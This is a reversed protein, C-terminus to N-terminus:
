RPGGHAIARVARAFEEGRHKYDRFMDFSSCAPSLLVADGEKALARARRVADDM